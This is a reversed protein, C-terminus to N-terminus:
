VSMQVNVIRKRGVLLYFIGTFIGLFLLGLIWMLKESRDIKTSTYVVYIATCSFLLFSVIAVSLLIDGNYYHMIKLISGIVTSVLWVFFGVKLIHINKM